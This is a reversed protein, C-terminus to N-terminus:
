REQAPSDNAEGDSGLYRYCTEPSLGWCASALRAFQALAQEPTDDAGEEDDDGAGDDAGGAADSDGDVGVRAAPRAPTGIASHRKTIGCRCTSSASWFGGELFLEIEADSLVASPALDIVYPSENRPESEAFVALYLAAAALAHLAACLLLPRAVPFEHSHPRYPAPSTRM